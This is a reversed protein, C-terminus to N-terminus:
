SSYYDGHRSNYRYQMCEEFDYFALAQEETETQRKFLAVCARGIIKAKREPTAVELMKRLSERTVIHDM